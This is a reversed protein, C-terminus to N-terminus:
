KKQLLVQGPTGCDLILAEGKISFGKVAELYNLFASEWSICTIRTTLFTEMTLANGSVTYKGSILNCGARGTVQGKEFRLHANMADPKGIEAGAKGTAVVLWDTGELFAPCVGPTYDRIGACEAMCENDYTKNDCGCVPRLAKHCVCDTTPTGVCDLAPKPACAALLLLLLTIFQKQM